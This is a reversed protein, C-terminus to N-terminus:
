PLQGAEIMRSYLIYPSAWIILDDFKGATADVSSFDKSVFVLDAGVTYRLNEGLANAAVQAEGANEGQDTLPVLDTVFDSGDNGLSVLIFPSNDVLHNAASTCDTGTANVANCVKLDPVVSAMTTTKIGDVTTFDTDSTVSYRIPNGWTDVLLNDRNYEGSLGLTKGPVFGHLGCAPDEGGSSTAIAPCPLRGEASAFGLIAAKIDKLQDKTNNRQTVEIRSTLSGIFSGMLVGVIVLVIALEILTFGRQDYKMYFDRRRM